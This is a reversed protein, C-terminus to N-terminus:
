DVRTFGLAETLLNFGEDCERFTKYKIRLTETNGRKFDIYIDGLYKYANRIESLCIIHSNLIIYEM